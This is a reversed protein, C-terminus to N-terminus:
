TLPKFHHALPRCPQAASDSIFLLDGGLVSAVCPGAVSLPARPVAGGSVVGDNGLTGTLVVVFLLCVSYVGFTHSRTLRGVWAVGEATCVGAGGARGTCVGQRTLRTAM